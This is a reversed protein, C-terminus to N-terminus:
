ANLSLRFLIVKQLKLCVPQITLEQHPLLQPPQPLLLQLQLLVALHNRVAQQLRLVQQLAQPPVQVPLPALNQVLLAQVPVQALAQLQEPGLIIQGATLNAFTPLLVTLLLPVAGDGNHVVHNILAHFILVANILRHQEAVRLQHLLQLLLLALQHIALQHLPQLQQVRAVRHAAVQHAQVQNLPRHVPCVPPILDM